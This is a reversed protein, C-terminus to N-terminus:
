GGTGIISLDASWSWSSGPVTVELSCLGDRLLVASGDPSSGDFACVDPTLSTLRFWSLPPDVCLQADGVAARSVVLKIGTAISSRDVVDGSQLPTWEPSKSWPHIAFSAELDTLEAPSVSRIAKPGRAPLDEVELSVEGPQFVFSSDELRTMGNSARVTLTAPRQVNSADFAEGDSDFFWMLPLDVPAGAPVVIRESCGAVPYEGYTSYLEVGAPEELVLTLRHEFPLTAPKSGDLSCGSGEGLPQRYDGRITFTATGPERLEAFLLGNEARLSAASGRSEVVSLWRLSGTERLSCTAVFAPASGDLIISAPYGPGLAYTIEDEFRLEGEEFHGVLYLGHRALPEFPLELSTLESPPATPPLELPVLDRTCGASALLLLILCRM